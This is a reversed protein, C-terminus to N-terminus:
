PSFGPATRRVSIETPRSNPIWVRCCIRWGRRVRRWSLCLRSRTETATLPTSFSGAAAYAAAATRNEVGLKQCIGYMYTKVTSVKLGMIEGIDRNTKGRAAWLNVAAERATLRKEWNAHEELLFFRAAKRSRDVCTVFLVRDEKV